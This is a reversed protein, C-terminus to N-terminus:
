VCFHHLFSLSSPLSRWTKSDYSRQTSYLHATM